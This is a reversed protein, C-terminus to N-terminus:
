KEIWGRLPYDVINFEPLDTRDPFTLTRRGTGRAVDLSYDGRLLFARVAQYQQVNDVRWGDVGVIVDGTQLGAKRSEPSDYEVYVGVAPSGAPAAERTLGNPFVREIERDLDERASADGRENVARHYFGVLQAPADYRTAVSEFAQEADDYRKLREYLRGAVILGNASGTSRSEEALRLAKGVQGTSAYHQVLWNSWYTKAVDDVAPNELAHEYAKAADAERGLRVLERGLTPCHSPAFACGAELVSLRREDDGLAALAWTVANADYHLREGMRRELEDYPLKQGYKSALFTTVLASDHPATDILREVDQAPKLNGGHMRLGAEYATRPAPAFFWASAPAMQQSVPEYKSGFEMYVWLTSPLRHPRAIGEAIAEPLYRGDAEKGRPGKTWWMTSGPFVWLGGLEDHLKVKMTDAANGAGISHRLYSDYRSIVAAMRRQEFEAWAGWPLVQLEGNVVARTAPTNLAAIEDRVLPQGHIRQYVDDIEAREMELSQMVVSGDGVGSISGTLIRFWDAEMPRGIKELESAGTVNRLTGRRARFYERQELRTASAPTPLLRWDMTIHMRLGRNWAAVADTPSDHMLADLTALAAAQHNKLAAQVALALRGDISPAAGRRLAEAIALHATMRNLAWRTDAQRGTPERLGFAGVLLAASEHLSANGMAGRLAPTLRANTAVLTPATLDLLAEHVPEISTGDARTSAPWAAAAVRAFAPVSWLDDHLNLDTTRGGDLTVVYSDPQAGTSVAVSGPAAPSAMETIDRVVEDIVWAEETTYPAALAAPKARVIVRFLRSYGLWGLVGVLCLLVVTSAANRRSM